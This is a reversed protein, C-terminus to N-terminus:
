WWVVVGVYMGGYDVLGDGYSGGGASGCWEDGGDCRYM